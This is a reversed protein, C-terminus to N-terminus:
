IARGDASCAFGIYARIFFGVLMESVQMMRRRPENSFSPACGVAAGVYLYLRDVTRIVPEVWGTVRAM